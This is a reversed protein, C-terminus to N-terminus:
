EKNSAIAQLEDAINTTLVDGAGFAGLEHAVRALFRKVADTREVEAGSWLHVSTDDGRYTVMVTPHLPRGYEVVVGAVLLAGESRGLFCGEVRAM